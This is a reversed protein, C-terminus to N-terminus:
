RILTVNGKKVLKDRNLCTADLYYVFVGSDSKKGKYTGDWGKNLETTEFIKEGWRDYVAFIIDVVIDSRVFLVDNNGDGNPTFANPVYVFPEDCIVELVTIRVTDSLLCGYQDSVYVVYET